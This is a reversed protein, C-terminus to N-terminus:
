SRRVKPTERRASKAGGEAFGSLNDHAVYSVYTNISKKIGELSLLSNASYSFVNSWFNLTEAECKTAAKERSIYLAIGDM